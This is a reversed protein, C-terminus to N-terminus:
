DAPVLDVDGATALWEARERQEVERRLEIGDRRHEHLIMTRHDAVKVAHGRAERLACELRTVDHERELLARGPHLVHVAIVALARPRVVAAVIGLIGLM